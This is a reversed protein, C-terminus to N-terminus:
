IYMSTREADNKSWEAYAKAEQESAGSEIAVAYADNYIDFLVEEM